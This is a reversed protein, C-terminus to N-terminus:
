PAVPQLFVTEYIRGEEGMSTGDAFGKVLANGYTYDMTRGTQQYQSVLRQSYEELSQWTQGNTSVFTEGENAIVQGQTTQNDHAAM